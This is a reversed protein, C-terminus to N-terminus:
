DWSIGKGPPLVFFQLFFFVLLSFYINKEVSDDSAIHVPTLYLCIVFIITLHFHFLTRCVCVREWDDVLQSPVVVDQIPKLVIMLLTRQTPKTTGIRCLRRRRDQPLLMLQDFELDLTSFHSKSYPYFPRSQSITTAYALKTHAM